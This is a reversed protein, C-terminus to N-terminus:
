SDATIRMVQQRAVTACNAVFRCWNPRQTRRAMAFPGRHINENLPQATQVVIPYRCTETGTDTPPSTHSIKRSTGHKEAGAGDKTCCAIPRHGAAQRRQGAGARLPRAPRRVRQVVGGQQAFGRDVLMHRKRLIAARRQDVRDPGLHLVGPRRAPRHVDGRRTMRHPPLRDRALAMGDGQLVRRDLRVRGVPKVLDVGPRAPRIHDRGEVRQPKGRLDHLRVVIEADGRGEAHVGMAPGHGEARHAGRHPRDLDDQRVAAMDGGRAVLIGLNIVHRGPLDGEPVEATGGRVIFRGGFAPIITNNNAVYTKYTDPDTVQVHGIWYGKPM